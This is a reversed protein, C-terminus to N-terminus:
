LQACLAIANFEDVCLCINFSVMLMFGFPIDCWIDYHVVTILLKVIHSLFCHSIPVIVFVQICQIQLLYQQM